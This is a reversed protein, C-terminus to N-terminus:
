EARTGTVRVIEGWSEYDRRLIQGFKEPGAPDVVAGLDTITKGFAPDALLGSLERDLRAVIAPPLGAPGLLGLWAGGKVAPFGAQATTPVDPMVGVREATGVAIPRVKGDRAFPMTGILTDFTLDVRGAVIDTLSQATGRYQVQTMRVGTSHALMAMLLQSTSGNGTTAYTVSDPDKRAKEVVDRLNTFGTHQGAVLLYPLQVLQGITTFDVRPDYGVNPYIHPNIAQPASAGVTITYGDPTSRAVYAAGISGSQGVRNDVVFRQGLTRSFRDAVLRAVSDTATGPPFGVIISVPKSPWDDARALRPAALALPAALLGRRTPSLAM